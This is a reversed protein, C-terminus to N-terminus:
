TAFHAAKELPAEMERWFASGPFRPAAEAYARARIDIHRTFRAEIAEQYVAGLRELPADASAMEAARFASEFAYQIGHGSLPDHTAAADGIAFWDAGYMTRLLRPFAPVIRVEELNTTTRGLRERVAPASELGWEWWRREDLRMRRKVAASAYFTAVVDRPTPTLSWWGQPCADVHLCLNDAPGEHASRLRGVAAIM